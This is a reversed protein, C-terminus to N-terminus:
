PPIASQLFLQSSGVQLVEIGFTSGPPCWTTAGVSTCFRNFDCRRCFCCCDGRFLFSFFARPDSTETGATFLKLWKAFKFFPKIFLSLRGVEMPWEREMEEEGLNLIMLGGVVGGGLFM